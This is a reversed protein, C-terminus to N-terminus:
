GSDVSNLANQIGSRTRCSLVTELRNIFAGVPMLGGQWVGPNASDICRFLPNLDSRDGATLSRWDTFFRTVGAM